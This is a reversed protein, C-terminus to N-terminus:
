WQEPAETSGSSFFEDDGTPLKGRSFRHGGRTWVYAGPSNNIPDIASSSWWTLGVDDIYSYDDPGFGGGAMFPALAYRHQAAYLGKEFSAPTLNPGAGQIGNLTLVMMVWFGTCVGNDPDSNPDVTHYARWCESVAKQQAWELNVFGFM